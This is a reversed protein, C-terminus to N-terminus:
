AFSVCVYESLLFKHRGDSNLLQQRAIYIQIIGHLLYSCTCLLDTTSNYVESYARYKSAFSLMSCRIIILKDSIDLPLM